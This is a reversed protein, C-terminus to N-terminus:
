DLGSYVIGVVRCLRRMSRMVLFERSWLAALTGLVILSAGALFPGRHRLILQMLRLVSQSLTLTQFRRQEREEIELFVDLSTAEVSSM